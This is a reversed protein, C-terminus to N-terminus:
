APGSYAQAVAAQAAAALERRPRGAAPLPELFVLECTCGPRGLLRLFNMAFSEDGRFTMDPDLEGNRLYRIMVPQVPCAAEVAARFLRAHFVKVGEGPRIGGEPFIAVRGGANLRAVMVGTVTGASDHSGREHFVTGALRALFGIVPWRGVEAKSVFGTQAKSYLATIDIWSIHNAVVLVPPPQVTGRTVVRIGFSRCLAAAWANLMFEDLRREGWRVAHGLRNQCLAAPLTGLMVLLFAAGRLLLRLPTWGDTWM